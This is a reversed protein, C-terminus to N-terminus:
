NKIFELKDTKAPNDDKLKISTATRETELWNSNAKSLLPDTGFDISFKSGTEAWTGNATVAGNTATLQGGANFSFVYGSFKATEDKGSNFYLSVKWAGAIAATNTAIVDDKKSCTSSLLTHAAIIITLAKLLKM